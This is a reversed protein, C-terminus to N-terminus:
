RSNREIGVSIETGQVNTPERPLIGRKIEFREIEFKERDQVLNQTGSRNRERDRVKHVSLQLFFAFIQFDFTM